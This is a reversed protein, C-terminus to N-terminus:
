DTFEKEKIVDFNFLGKAITLKLFPKGSLEKLNANDVGTIKREGSFANGELIIGLAQSHKGGETYLQEIKYKHTTPNASILFNLCLFLGTLFPAVGIVNFIIMEYKIFNFWQQYYKLPILFGVVMFGVIYKSLSYFDILTFAYFGISSGTGIFLAFVALKLYRLSNDKKDRYNELKKKAPKM